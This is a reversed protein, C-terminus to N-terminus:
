YKTTIVSPSGSSRRVLAPPITWNYKRQYRAEKEKNKKHAGRIAAWMAYTRKQVSITDNPAFIVDGVAAELQGASRRGKIGFVFAQENEVIGHVVM